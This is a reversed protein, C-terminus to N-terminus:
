LSCTASRLLISACLSSSSFISAIILSFSRLLIFSISSSLSNSSSLFFALASSTPMWLYRKFNNKASFRRPGTTLQLREKATALCTLLFIIKLWYDTRWPLRKMILPCIIPIFTCTTAAIGRTRPRDFCFFHTPNTLDFPQRIHVKQSVMMSGKSGDPKLTKGIWRNYRLVNLYIIEHVYLVSKNCRKVWKRSYNKHM